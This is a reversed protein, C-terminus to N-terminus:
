LSERMEKCHQKFKDKSGKYYNIGGIGNNVFRVYLKNIEVELYDFEKERMLEYYDEDSFQILEETQNEM